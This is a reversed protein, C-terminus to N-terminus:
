IAEYEADDSTTDVPVPEARFLHWLRPGLEVFLGDTLDAAARRYRLDRTDDALDVEAAALDDWGTRV